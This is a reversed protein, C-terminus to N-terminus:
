EVKGSEHILSQIDAALPPIDEKRISLRFEEKGELINVGPPVKCTMKIYSKIKSLDPRVSEPVITIMEGNANALFTDMDTIEVKDPMKRIKLTGRPLDITKKGQERIYNELKLRLLNIREQLASNKKLTWENIIQVEKACESFNSEIVSELTSIEKIILDFHAASYQEEKIEAESLLEDIFSTTDAQM